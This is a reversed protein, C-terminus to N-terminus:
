RRRKAREALLANINAELNSRDVVGAYVAAIRGDADILYTLPLAKIDYRRTVDDDAMVVLYGVRHDRVFPKVRGWAEDPGSLNEYIIDESVGITTLGQQEYKKAVEIFGPIEEICGGCTTAWFDLMVVRGRYSSLRVVRGDGDKLVFDPATKRDSSHSVNVRVTQGAAVAMEACLATVVFTLGIRAVLKTM